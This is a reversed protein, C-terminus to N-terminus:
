GVLHEFLAIDHAILDAEIEVPGAPRRASLRYARDALDLRNQGSKGACELADMLVLADRDRDFAWPGGLEAAFLLVELFHRAIEKVIGALPCRTPNINTNAGAHICRGIPTQPDVDHHSIVARSQRWFLALLRRCTALPQVFGFRARSQTK